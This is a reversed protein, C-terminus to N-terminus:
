TQITSGAKRAAELSQYIEGWAVMEVQKETLMGTSIISPDLIRMVYVFSPWESIPFLSRGEHRTALLLSDIDNDGLGYRQGILPPDISVLMYDDRHIDALRAQYSCARPQRLDDHEASVLFFSPQQIVM